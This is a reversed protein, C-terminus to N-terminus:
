DVWEIRTRGGHGHIADLEEISAYIAISRHETVWCLVCTGDSFKVGEAVMGIGSIGSIDEDRVLKFLRVFPLPNM